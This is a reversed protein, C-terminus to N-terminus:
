GCQCRQSQPCNLGVIEIEPPETLCRQKMTTRAAASVNAAYPRWRLYRETYVGGASTINSVLGGAQSSCNYLRGTASVFSVPQAIETSCDCVVSLLTCDQLGVPDTPMQSATILGIDMLQQVRRMASGVATSQFAVNTMGKTAVNSQLQASYGGALGRFNSVVTGMLGAFTTVVESMQQQTQDTTNATYNVLVGITRAMQAKTQETRNTGSKEQSALITNVLNANSQLLDTVFSGFVALSAQSLQSFQSAM